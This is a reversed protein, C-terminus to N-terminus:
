RQWIPLTSSIGGMGVGAVIRGVILQATGFSSVQIAGGAIIFITFFLLNHRRSLVEGYLCMAMAGIFCGLMFVGTVTGQMTPSLDFRAQVSRSCAAHIQLSKCPRGSIVGGLAGNELGYLVWGLGATLTIAVLLKSGRLGTQLM